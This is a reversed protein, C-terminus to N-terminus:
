NSFTNKGDEDNPRLLDIILYLILMAAGITVACDAINFSYNFWSIPFRVFDVVYGFRIRDILNGIGGGAVLSLAWVILPSTVKAKFEYFLIAAVMIIPLAVLLIRNGSFIGMAAGDNHLYCFELVGKIIPTTYYLQFNASVLYKVLQDAVLIFASVAISINRHKKISM